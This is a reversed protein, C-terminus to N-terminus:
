SLGSQKLYDYSSKQQTMPGALGEYPDKTKYGSLTLGGSQFGQNLGEVTLNSTPQTLSQQYQNFATTANNLGTGATQQYQQLQLDAAQKQAALTQAFQQNQQEITFIKNRYDMLASLRAQSKATDTEARAQTIKLMNNQFDQNAQTIADQKQQQLQLMSNQFKQDIEMKQVGIQRVTDSYSQALKGTQRQQEVNSIESAAQGASTAGGFRQGYGMRLENYLRRIQAAQQETSIGAQNTQENLTASNASNQDTLMKSNVGYNGEISQLTGPLQSRLNGEAQNFYDYSSKYANEIEANTDRLSNELQAKLNDDWPIEGRLMKNLLDQAGGGSSQQTTTTKQTTNNTAPQTDNTGLVLGGSTSTKPMNYSVQQNGSQTTLGTTTPYGGVLNSGGGEAYAKGPSLLNQLNETVGLDRTGWSGTHAGTNNYLNQAAGGVFPVFGLVDSVVDWMVRKNDFSNINEFPNAHAIVKM